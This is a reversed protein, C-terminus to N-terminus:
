LKTVDSSLLRWKGKGLDGLTIRGIRLRKLYTVTYGLAKFIRRIERNQGEHLTINLTSRSGTASRLFIKCPASKIERTKLGNEIKAIDLSSIKNNLEVHYEKEVEFKPHTLQYSFDGDNTLLLLGETDVDLRGIPFLKSFNRPLLDYVTKKNFPDSRSTVYGSPKHLLLYIKDEIGIELDRGDYEIHDLTPDFKQGVQAIEGNVKIKGLKLEEGCDRRSLGTKDRLFKQISTQM